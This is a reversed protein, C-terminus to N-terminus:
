IDILRVHVRPNKKDIKFLHYINGIEKWGDNKLVGAQVLGDFIMKQGAMINDKDMRMDKCHWTIIINVKELPRKDKISWAVLNTYDEKMKRYVSWHSKSADIIENMTPLSGMITFNMGM